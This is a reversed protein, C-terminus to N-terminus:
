SRLSVLVQQCLKASIRIDPRAAIERIILEVHDFTLLQARYAQVLIGLTGHVQLQLRRAEARAIEDDLLVLSDTMTQALALLEHEGPDLIVPPTYVDLVAATVEVVPWRYHQWFLRV